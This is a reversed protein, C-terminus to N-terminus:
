PKVSVIISSRGARPLCSFRSTTDRNSIQRPEFARLPSTHRSITRFRDDPSIEPGSTWLPPPLASALSRVGNHGCLWLGVFDRGM